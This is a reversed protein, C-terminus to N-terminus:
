PNITWTQLHNNAPKALGWHQSYDDEGTFFTSDPLTWSFSSNLYSAYYDVRASTTGPIDSDSYLSESAFEVGWGSTGWVTLPNFTTTQSVVTGDVYGRLCACSSEYDSTYDPSQGATRHTAGYWTLPTTGAIGEFRQAFDVTTYNQDLEYGTQMWGAENPNGQLAPSYVMSYANAFNDNPRVGTVGGPCLTSSQVTIQADAGYVQGRAANKLYMDHADQV